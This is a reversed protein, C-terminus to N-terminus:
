NYAKATSNFKNFSKKKTKNSQYLPKYNKINTAFNICIIQHAHM